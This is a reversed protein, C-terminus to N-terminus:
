ARRRTQVHQHDVPLDLKDPVLHLRRRAREALVLAVPVPLSDAELRVLAVLERGQDVRDDGIRLSDVRHAHDVRIPRVVVRLSRDLQAVSLHNERASAARVLDALPDGHSPPESPQTDLTKLSPIRIESASGVCFVQGILPMTFPSSLPANLRRVALRRREDGRLAHELHVEEPHRTHLLRKVVSSVQKFRAWNAGTRAPSPNKKPSCSRMKFSRTLACEDRIPQAGFSSVIRSM